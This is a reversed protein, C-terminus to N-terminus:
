PLQCHIPQQLSHDRTHTPCPRSDGVLFYSLCYGIISCTCAILLFLKNVQYNEFSEIVADLQLPDEVHSFTSFFLLLLSVGWTSTCYLTRTFHCISILLYVGIYLTNGVEFHTKYRSCVVSAAIPCEFWAIWGPNLTLVLCILVYDFGLTSNIIIGNGSWM